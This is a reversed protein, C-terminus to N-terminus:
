VRTFSTTSSTPATLPLLPSDKRSRALRASTATEVIVRTLAPATSGVTSVSSAGKGVRSAVLQLGSAPRVDHGGGDPRECGRPGLSTASPARVPGAPSSKEVPERELGIPRSLRDVRRRRRRPARDDIRQEGGDGLLQGVVGPQPPRRPRCRHRRQHHRPLWRGSPPVELDGILESDPSQHHVGRAEPTIRRREAGSGSRSASPADPSPDAGGSRAPVGWAPTATSTDGTPSALRREFSTFADIVKPAEFARNRHRGVNVQRLVDAAVLGKFAENTAQTTRGILAAASAVTVIPAGAPCRHAPRHGVESPGARPCGAM